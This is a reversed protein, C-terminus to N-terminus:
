SRESAGTGEPTLGPAFPSTINVHFNHGATNAVGHIKITDTNTDTAAGCDMAVPFYVIIESGNHDLGVVHTPSGSFTVDVTDVGDYACSTVASSRGGAVTLGAAVLVGVVVSSLGRRRMLHPYVWMPIQRVTLNTM